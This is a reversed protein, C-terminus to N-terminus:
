VSESKRDRCAAFYTGLHGGDLLNYLIEPDHGNLVIMPIGAATVIKAANLKAMMGGTGRDTGAGGAMAYLEDTIEEVRDIRAASPNTRPDSDYLGDVDSLNLLLDAECLLAVYASLIDNGGFKTLEDTSVSDNENVIPICNMSLLRSFTNEAAIRRNPLQVADKTMLIQAVTQGYDSFFRDYIKMLESQGVAAMAQKEEPTSPIHGLGMKAVGASVAGSSVLVVRIGSNKMDSLVKVLREIRRLNLHGTAHTLTSTGVKVVITRQETVDIM